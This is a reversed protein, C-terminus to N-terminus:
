YPHVPAPSGDYAFVPNLGRMGDDGWSTGAGHGSDIPPKPQRELNIMGGYIKKMAKCDLEFSLPLDRISLTKM